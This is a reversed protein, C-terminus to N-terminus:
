PSLVFALSAAQLVSSLVCSQSQRASSLDARLNVVNLLYFITRGLALRRNMGEMPSFGDRSLFDVFM